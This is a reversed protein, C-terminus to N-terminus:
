GREQAGDRLLPCVGKGDARRSCVAVAPADPAACGRVGTGATQEAAGSNVVRPSRSLVAPVSPARDGLAHLTRASRVHTLLVADGCQVTVRQPKSRESGLLCATM